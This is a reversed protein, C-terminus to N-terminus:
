REVSAHNPAPARLAATHQAAIAPAPTAPAFVFRSSSPALVIDTALVAAGARCARDIILCERAALALGTGPGPGIGDLQNLAQDLRTGPRVLPGNTNTKGEPRLLENSLM